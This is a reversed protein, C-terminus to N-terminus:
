KRILMVLGIGALVVGSVILISMTGSSVGLAENLAQNKEATQTQAATPNTKRGLGLTDRIHAFTDVLPVVNDNLTKQLGDLISARAPTYGDQQYVGSPVSYGFFTLDTAPNGTGAM